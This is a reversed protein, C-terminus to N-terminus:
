EASNSRDFTFAVINEEGSGALSVFADRGDLDYGNTVSFKLSEGQKLVQKFSGYTGRDKKANYRVELSGM